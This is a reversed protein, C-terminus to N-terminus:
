EKYEDIIDVGRAKISIAAMGEARPPVSWYERFVITERDILGM